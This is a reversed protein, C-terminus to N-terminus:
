EGREIQPTRVIQPTEGVFAMRALTAISEWASDPEFASPSAGPHNPAVRV